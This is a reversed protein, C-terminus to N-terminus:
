TENGSRRSCTQLLGHERLCGRIEPGAASGRRVMVAPRGLPADVVHWGPERQAENWLDVWVDSGAPLYLEIDRRDPHARAPDPGRDV